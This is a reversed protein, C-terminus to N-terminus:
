GFCRHLFMGFGIAIVAAGALNELVIMVQSM